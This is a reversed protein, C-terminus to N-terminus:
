SIFELYFERYDSNLASIESKLRNKKTYVTGVSYGTLNSITTADFGAIVYMLFRFDSEKHHPLECRLKDIINDLSGNVMSMFEKQSKEDNVIVSLQRMAEDYLLDKRNKKIPSLYAICLDNLSKYQAKYMSAFQKRLQLLAAEKEALQANIAVAQINHLNLMQESEYHLTALEEAKQALATKKRLYMLVLVGVAIISCLILFAIRQKDLEHEKKLFTTEAQLYDRQTRILSQHLSSMVISDQVIVSEELDDLAQKYQGQNRRIRYRWLTVLDLQRNFGELQKIINDAIYSEGLLQYAYAYVCYGEVTMFAQHSRIIEDIIEISQHPRPEPYRLLDKAYIIRRRVYPISDYVPMEFFANYTNEAEAWRRCNAYSSALHGTIAWVGISDQALRGYNLADKTYALEQEVNNNRSFVDSIASNVLEKYYNDDVKSSDELALQYAIMASNDEGRNVYFCGQYFYAKMKEVPTGHQSYFDVAPQIISMDTTDIYNKDLAISYLLSFKARLRDTRLLDRNLNNLVVLASDPRDQIYSEVDNLRSITQHPICSEVYLLFFLLYAGKQLFLIHKNQKRMMYFATM